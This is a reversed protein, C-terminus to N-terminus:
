KTKSFDSLQSNKVVTCLFHHKGNLIEATFTVLDATQAIPEVHILIEFYNSLKKSTIMKLQIM